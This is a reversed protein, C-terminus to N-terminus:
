PTIERRLEYLAIAAAVSLNLSGAGPRMPIAALADCKEATLRRLGRGESGIVLAVRGPRAAASLAADADGDM